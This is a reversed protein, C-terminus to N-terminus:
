TCEHDRGIAHEGQGIPLHEHHRVILRDDVVDLGVGLGDERVDRVVDTHRVRDVTGRDEQWEGRGVEDGLDEHTTARGDIGRDLRGVERRLERGGRLAGVDLESKLADHFAPFDLVHELARGHGLSNVEGVTLHECFLGKSGLVTMGPRATGARLTVEDEVLGAAASALASPRPCGREFSSM